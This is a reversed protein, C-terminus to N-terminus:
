DDTLPPTRGDVGVVGSEAPRVILDRVYEPLQLANMSEGDQECMVSLVAQARYQAQEPTGHVITAVQHLFGVLGEPEYPM